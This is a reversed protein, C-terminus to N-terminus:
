VMLLNSVFSQGEENIDGGLSFSLTRVNIEDIMGDFPTPLQAPYILIANKCKKAVSYAVIQQIDSSSPSDPIKYKTDLVYATNGTDKENIVLDIDFTIVGSKGFKVREHSVLELEDPLNIRLWEAVFLEFLKAMDIVFPLMSHDGMNMTPGSNELFFRCLAHMPKYDENLRNYLRNISDKPSFPIAQVIRQLERFAKRIAPISKEGCIGSRIILLLTWALLQNDAIDPTHEQYKSPINVDWPKRFMEQFLVRGRLYPLVDQKEIYQRYLGKRQRDLVRKALINALSEYFENLSKSEYLGEVVFPNLRYAYELMLFLNKIPVKPNLCLTIEDNVPIYGVWGNSTLEWQNDTKWSPQEISVYKSFKQWILKAVEERFYDAPFLESKYETLNLERSQHTM